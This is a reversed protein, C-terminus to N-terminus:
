EQSIGGECRPALEGRAFAALKAFLDELGARQDFSRYVRIPRNERNLEYYGRATISPAPLEDFDGIWPQQLLVVVAGDDSFQFFETLPPFRSVFRDIRSFLFRGLEGQRGIKEAAEAMGFRALRYVPRPLQWLRIDSEMVIRAALRDGDQNYEPGGEPYAAGGIWVATLRKAIGPEKLYAAALDTLPGLFVVFLPRADDALAEQIILDAGPSHVGLAPDTSPSAAGRRVPFCGELGMIRLLNGMEQYSAEMSEEVSGVPSASHPSFHAAVLGRVIFTPSLLAHAIVVQDDTENAADSDIILRVQKQASVSWQPAPLQLASSGGQQGVTEATVTLSCLFLFWYTTWVVLAFSRNM